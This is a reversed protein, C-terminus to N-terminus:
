RAAALAEVAAVADLLPPLALTMRAADDREAALELAEAARAMPGAGAARASGKLRHAARAVAKADGQALAARLLDLADRTAALFEHLMATLLAPDDGLISTLVAFDVVADSAAPMAPAAAATATLRPAEGLWRALAADLRALDVPKTLYDDMGAERCREADGPMAAATLALIPRPAAGAAAEAARLARALAYGDMDPMQCDTILLAFDGAQWAALAERGGAVVDARYGLLRLQRAIVFRNTPHDDAVLVPRGRLPLPAAPAVPAAAPTVVAAREQALVPLDLRVTFVSGRGPTSEATLTGGMLDVLRRCISLGLGSGGFRRTTSSDGQVFPQFLRALVEPPMGIGTDEIRLTVAARGDGAPEAAATVRVRGDETFKVANGVLNYLVQRLRVADGEVLAPLAPDPEALLAVGKAGAQPTLLAAAGTTVAALDVPARELDLKGAEIKSWDLIDNILQLLTRASDSMLAVAERQEADLRTRGLVELLGLVGNMPTRIEHSMVALFESKARAAEEAARRAEETARQLRKEATVDRWLAVQGGDPMPARTVQVIRGDLLPRDTTERRRERISTLWHEIEAVVAAEPAASRAAAHLVLEGVTVGHRLVDEPLGHIRAAAPNWLQLVGDADVVTVGDGMAQLTTDLLARQRAVTDREERLAAVARRERDHLRKRDLGAQIRAKLLTANFPKQLFDEAGAEICRAIADIDGLSSIMIIPLDRCRDDAKLRVLLEYGSVKPMLLDLLVLDFERGHLLAVATEADAATAATHGERALWREMLLGMTPNDDVVLIRGPPALRAPGAVIVEDFDPHDAAHEPLVADIRAILNDVRATVARLDPALTDILWLEAADGGGAGRTELLLDAFGRIVNLANGVGHRLGPPPRGTELAATAQTLAHAGDAMSRVAAAVGPPDGAAATRDLLVDVHGAIAAAYRGLMAASRADAADLSSAAVGEPAWPPLGM